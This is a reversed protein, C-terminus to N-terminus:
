RWTFGCTATATSGSSAQTHRGQPDAADFIEVCTWQDEAPVPWDFKIMGAHKAVLQRGAVEVHGEDGAELEELVRDVRNDIINGDSTVARDLADEQSM